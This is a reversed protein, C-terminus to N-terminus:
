HKKFFGSKYLERIVEGSEASDFEDGVRIPLLNFLAGASIRQLGTVKIDSVVFNQQALALAAFSYVLISVVIKKMRFM